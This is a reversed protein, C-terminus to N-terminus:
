GEPEHHETVPKGNKDVKVPSKAELASEIKTSGVMAGFPKTMAGSMRTEILYKEKNYDIDFDDFMSVAGGKDAGANYDNLDVIIFQPDIDKNREFIEDPVEVIKSVRLTTALEAETKYMPHKMSDKILLMECLASEKIFMTKNGSGRYNKYGRIIAEIAAEATTQDIIKAIKIKYSFLDAESAIPRICDTKIHERDTVLRGDGVLVAGAIEEDLMQRMEGKLWAVVDFDTIDIKDDRDMEQKKFVTTPNTERQLLSIVEAAKLDGKIYGKARAADETINAYTTKIKAFPTHHIGEMVAKVWPTQRAIFEPSSTISKADPFLLDINEIGYEQAHALVADSLKGYNEAHSLVDNAFENIDVGSHSLVDDQKIDNDEFANYNMADGGDYSHEVNEENDNPASNEEVAKGILFYMVKKQIDSMSDIVDQITQENNDAMEKEGKEPETDEQSKTNAHEITDTAEKSESDHAIFGSIIAEDEIIEDSGDSHEFALNDIRAQPNAGSLVVSVERIVGHIVDGAPSQRLGNAYISLSNLDGNKVQEKVLQGKETNNFKCYAYVGEARNELLAHGLVNSPDTHQHQWVLPVVQGDNDIFANHRITRGDSCKVNCRTAWGSFDYKEAM